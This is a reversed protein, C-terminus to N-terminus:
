SDERSFIYMINNDNLPYSMETYGGEPKTTAGTTPSSPEKVEVM